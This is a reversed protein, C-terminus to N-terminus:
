AGPGANFTHLSQFGRRHLFNGVARRPLRRYHWARPVGLSAVAGPFDPVSRIAIYRHVRREKSALIAWFPDRPM